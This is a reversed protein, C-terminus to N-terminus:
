EKPTSRDARGGSPAEYGMSSHCYAPDVHGESAPHCRAPSAQAAGRPLQRARHRTDQCRAAFCGAGHGVEWGLTSLWELTAQEVHDETLGTV